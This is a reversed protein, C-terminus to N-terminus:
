PSTTGQAEHDYAHDFLRMPEAPSGALWGGRGPSASSAGTSEGVKEKPGVIALDVDPYGLDLDLDLVIALDYFDVSVTIMVYRDVARLVPPTKSACHSGIQM